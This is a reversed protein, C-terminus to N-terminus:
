IAGYTGLALAFYEVAKQYQRADHFAGGLNNLVTAKKEADQLVSFYELAKQFYETAKGTDKIEKYYSGLNNLAIGEKWPDGAMQALRLQDNLQGLNAKSDQLDIRKKEKFVPSLCSEGTIGRASWRSFAM